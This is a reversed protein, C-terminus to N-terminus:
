NANQLTYNQDFPDFFKDKYGIVENKLTEFKDRPFLGKFCAHTLVYDGPQWQSDESIQCFGSSTNSLPNDSRDIYELLTKFDVVILAWGAEISLGSNELFCNVVTRENTKENVDVFSVALKRNM